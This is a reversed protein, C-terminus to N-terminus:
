EEDPGFGMDLDPEEEFYHGGPPFRGDERVQHLGAGYLRGCTLCREEEDKDTTETYANAWAM